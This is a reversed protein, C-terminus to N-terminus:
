TIDNRAFRLTTLPAIEQKHPSQKTKADKTGSRAVVHEKQPTITKEFDLWSDKEAAFKRPNARIPTFRDQAQRLIRPSM